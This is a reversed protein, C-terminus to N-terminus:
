LLVALHDYLFAIKLLKFGFQLSINSLIERAQAKDLVSERIELAHRLNRKTGLMAKEYEAPLADQIHHQLNQQAQKQLFVLDNTVTGRAIQLKSAIERQTYGASSLELVRARRWEIQNKGYTVKSDASTALIQNAKDL